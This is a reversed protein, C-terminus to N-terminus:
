TVVRVRDSLFLSTGDSISLGSIRIEVTIPHLDPSVTVQIVSCVKYVDPSNIRAIMRSLTLSNSSVERRNDVENM